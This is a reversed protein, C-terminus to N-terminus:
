LSVCGRRPAFKQTAQRVSDHGAAATEVEPEDRTGPRNASGLSLSQPLGGIVVRDSDLDKVPLLSRQRLKRNQAGFKWVFYKTIESIANGARFEDADLLLEDRNADM